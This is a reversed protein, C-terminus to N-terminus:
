PVGHFPAPGYRSSLGAGFRGRFEQSARDGERCIHLPIGRGLCSWHAGQCRIGPPGPRVIIGPGRESWVLLSTQRTRHSVISITDKSCIRRLNGNFYCFWAFRLSATTATLDPCQQTRPDWAARGRARAGLPSSKHSCCIYIVPLNFAYDLPGPEKPAM